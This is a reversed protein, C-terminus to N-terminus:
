KVPTFSFELTTGRPDSPADTGGWTTTTVLITVQWKGKRFTGMLASSGGALGGQVKWGRAPMERVYWEAVEVPDAGPLRRQARSDYSLAGGQRHKVAVPKGMRFGKAVPVDKPLAPVPLDPRDIDFRPADVVEIEKADVQDLWWRGSEKILTAQMQYTGYRLQETGLLDVSGIRYKVVAKRGDNSVLTPPQYFGVSQCAQWRERFAPFPTAERSAASWLIFAANLDRDNIKSYYRTVQAVPDGAPAAVLPAALTILLLLHLIVRRM